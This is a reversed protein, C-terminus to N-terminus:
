NKTAFCSFGSRKLAKCAGEATNAELGAFRARYLTASGKQVKETFPKASGLAGHSETKARALLDNAKALDDTAGIQIMWGTHPETRVPAAAPQELKAVKIPVPQADHAEKAAHRMARRASPTATTEDTVHTTSGDLGVLHPRISGTAMRDENGQKPMGPVYAPRARPEPVPEPTLTAVQVPAAAVPTPATRETAQPAEPANEAEDETVAEVAPASEGVHQVVPIAEAVQDLAPNEEIVSATRTTACKDLQSEILDAMIRDRGLRTKGGLVVSVLYHGHRNVSSLLNFGSLHTYGTKIGDMGEVTEMLHNHNPMFQGAYRFSPTSFFHYYRPYKDHIARGLTVMDKATTLQEDNPLGSANRYLTRSMGLAHAKRTMMRAFADEDGGIQEAIAVAMDNASKTVIAKIADEIRITSGARLGLKTPQQSAAHPSIHLESDLSLRKKELQEFLLYLTMVKTLSAPHRPENEDRGYLVRGSNGDVAYASFPPTYSGPRVHMPGHHAAHRARFVVHHAMAVRGHHHHHRAAAPLPTMGGLFVTAGLSSLVAQRLTRKLPPLKAM